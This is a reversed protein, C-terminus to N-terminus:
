WGLSTISPAKLLITGPEGVVRVGNRLHLADHMMYTGAPVEVVGGGAAGADDVAQQLTTNTQGQYTGANVTITKSM